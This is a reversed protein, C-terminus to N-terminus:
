LGMSTALLVRSSISKRPFGGSLSFPFGFATIYDFASPMIGGMMMITM